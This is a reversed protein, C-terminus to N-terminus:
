RFQVSPIRSDDVANCGPDAHDGEVVSPDARRLARSRVRDRRHRLIGDGEDSRQAQFLDVEEAERESAKNRLHNRMFLRPENPFHDEGAGTRGPARADVLDRRYGEAVHGLARQRELVRFVIEEEGLSRIAAPRGTVKEASQSLPGLIAVCRDRDTGEDSLQLGYARPRMLGRVIQRANAVGHQHRVAILVLHHRAAVRDIEGAAERVGFEYKVFVGPVAAYIETDRLMRSSPGPTRPTKLFRMSPSVSRHRRPWLHECSM